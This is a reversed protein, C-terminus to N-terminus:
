EVPPLRPVLPMRTASQKKTTSRKRGRSLRGGRSSRPVVQSKSFLLLVQRRRLFVLSGAAEKVITKILSANQLTRTHALAQRRPWTRTTLMLAKHESNTLAQRRRLTVNNSQNAETHEAIHVLAPNPKTKKTTWNGIWQNTGVDEM